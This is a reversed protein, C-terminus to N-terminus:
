NYLDTLVDVLHYNNNEKVIIYKANSYTSNKFFTSTCDHYSGSSDKYYVAGRRTPTITGLYTKTWTSGIKCSVWCYITTGIRYGKSKMVTYLSVRTNATYNSTQTISSATSANNTNNFEIAFQEVGIDGTWSFWVENYGYSSTSGNSVYESLSHVNGTHNTSHVWGDTAPQSPNYEDFHLNGSMEVDQYGKSCGGSQGVLIIYM